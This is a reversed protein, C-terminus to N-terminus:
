NVIRKRYEDLVASVVQPLNPLKYSLLAQGRSVDLGLSSPRPPQLSGVSGPTARSMSLDLQAAIEEVFAAKSFVQSAALNFLGSARQSALDLAARAFTGADISSTYADTFLSVKMDEKVVQIAWEAFTQPGRNRIGVISTRLVLANPSTLAFAEAAFKSRAYENVLQLPEDEYHAVDGGNAYYHDTSIQILRNGTRASWAALLALPRANVQYALGPEIECRGVDVLAACNVVFEPRVQDLLSVLARDDVVDLCADADTRAAGVSAWRRRDLEAMMAQGLLGTSGLVLVRTM